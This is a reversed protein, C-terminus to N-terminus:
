LKELIVKSKLSFMYDDKIKKYHENNKLQVELDIKDEDGVPKYMPHKELYKILFYYKISKEHSPLTYIKDKLMYITSVEQTITMKKSSPSVRRQDLLYQAIKISGFLCADRCFGKLIAHTYEITNLYKVFDDVSDEQIIKLMFSLDDTKNEM